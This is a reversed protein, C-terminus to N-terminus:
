LMFNLMEVLCGTDLKMEPWEEKWMGWVAAVGTQLVAGFVWPKQLTGKTGEGDGVCIKYSCAPWLFGESERQCKAPTEGGECFAILTTVM